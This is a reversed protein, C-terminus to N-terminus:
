NYGPSHLAEQEAICEKIIESCPKRGALEIALRKAAIARIDDKLVPIKTMVEQFQPCRLIKTALLDIYKDDDKLRRTGARIKEIAVDLGNQENNRRKKKM